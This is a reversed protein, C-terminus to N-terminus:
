PGGAPDDADGDPDDPDQWLAWVVLGYGAVVIFALSALAVTLWEWLSM